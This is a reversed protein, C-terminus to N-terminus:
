KDGLRQWLQRQTARHPPSQRVARDALARKADRSTRQYLRDAAEQEIRLVLRDADQQAITATLDNVADGLMAQADDLRQALEVTRAFDVAVRSGVSLALSRHLEAVVSQNQNLKGLAQRSAVVRAAVIQHMIKRARAIRQMSKARTSM